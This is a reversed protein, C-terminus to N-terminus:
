IAAKHRLLTFSFGDCEELPTLVFTHEIEFGPTERLFREVPTVTEVTLVSCTMYGIWGGPALHAFARNLLEKQLTAYTHLLDPRLKWKMDPQRRWVGTGSCPVDLIIGDFIGMVAGPDAFSIDVGARKARQRLQSLRQPAIDHATIPGDHCAALALTKGGGGACYDLIRAGPSLPLAAVLAQAGPDQLEIRGELYPATRELGRGHDLVLAWPSAAHPQPSFGLTQLEAQASDRTTKRINVRLGIQARHRFAELVDDAKARLSEDLAPLLWDPCDLRVARPAGALDRQLREHETLADPAYRDKTFYVEPNEGTSRVGGLVIGRGTESGGLWSRSRRQRLGSFVIDRVAARDKSGAYRAGRAWCTLAAEAPAGAIVHDLVEIAAALRAGPTM